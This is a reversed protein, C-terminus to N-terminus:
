AGFPASRPGQDLAAPYGGFPLDTLSALSDPGLKVDRRANRAGDLMSGAHLAGIEDECDVGILISWYEVERMDADHGIRDTEQWREGLREPLPNRWASV